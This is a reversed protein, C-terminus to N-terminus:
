FCSKVKSSIFKSYSKKKKKTVPPASPKTFVVMTYECAVPCGTAGCKCRSDGTCDIVM